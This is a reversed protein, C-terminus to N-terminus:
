RIDPRALPENPELSTIVWDGDRKALGVHVTREDIARAGPQGYATWAKATLHVQATDDDGVTVQVDTFEM